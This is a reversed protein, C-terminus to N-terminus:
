PKVARRSYMQCTRGLLDSRNITNSHSKQMEYLYLSVNTGWTTYLHRSYNHLWTLNITSDNKSIYNSVPKRSNNWCSWLDQQPMNIKLVRTYFQTYKV